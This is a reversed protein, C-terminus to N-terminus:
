KCSKAPCIQELEPFPKYAANGCQEKTALVLQNLHGGFFYGIRDTSGLYQHLNNRANYRVCISYRQDKDVPTLVPDSLYADRIKTPDSLFNQLTSLVEKRFDSPFINPNELVAKDSSCAALAAAFVAMLCLPTASKRM